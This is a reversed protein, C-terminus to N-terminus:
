KLLKNSFKFLINFFIVLLMFIFLFIFLHVHFTMVTAGTQGWGGGPLLVMPIFFPTVNRCDVRWV